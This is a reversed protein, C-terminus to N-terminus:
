AANRSPQGERVTALEEARHAFTRAAAWAECDSLRYAIRRNGIRVYRPGGFGTYRWRQATRPRTKYRECFEMETLYTDTATAM